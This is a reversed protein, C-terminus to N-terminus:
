KQNDSDEPRLRLYNELRNAQSWLFVNPMIWIMLIGSVIFISQRPSTSSVNVVLLIFFALSVECVVIFVANAHERLHSYTERLGRRFDADRKEVLQSNWKEYNGSHQEENVDVENRKDANSKPFLIKPGDLILYVVGLWQSIFVWVAPMAMLFLVLITFVAINTRGTASIFFAVLVSFSIFFWVPISIRSGPNNKLARAAHFVTIPTSAVYCYAFGLLATIVLASTDVGALSLSVQASNNAESKTSNNAIPSAYVLSQIAKAYDRKEKAEGSTQVAILIAIICPVGIITGLLYRVLYSEWWRNSPQLETPNNISM